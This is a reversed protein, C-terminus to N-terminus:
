QNALARGGRRLLSGYSGRTSGCKGRDRPRAVGQNRTERVVIGGSSTIGAFKRLQPDHADPCARSTAIKSRAEPTDDGRVERSSFPPWHQVSRIQQAPFGVIAVAMEDALDVFQKDLGGVLGVADGADKEAPPFEKRQGRAIVVDGEDRWSYDAQVHLLLVEFVVLGIFGPQGHALVQQVLLNNVGAAAFHDAHIIDIEGLLADIAGHFQAYRLHIHTERSGRAAQQVAYGRRTQHAAQGGLQGGADNGPFEDVQDLGVRQPAYFKADSVLLELAHMRGIQRVDHFVQRRVLALRDDSGEILLGGGFREGFEVLAQGRLDDLVQCGSFTASM